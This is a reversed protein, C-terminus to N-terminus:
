HVSKSIVEESTLGFLPPLQINLMGLYIYLQGRHHIEHEIMGRLWKWSTIEIGAPTKCKRQLDSDSLQSYIAQCERQMQDYYNIIDEYGNALDPGCGAYRSPKLQVNEAFMYREIAAIHRILDGITFRGKQYTWEIQKAPIHEFLRRSREKIKLYYLLFQEITQFEM